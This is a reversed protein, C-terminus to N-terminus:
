AVAAHDLDVVAIADPRAVGVEVPDGNVLALVDRRTRLDAQQACGAPSRRLMEVVLDQDVPPRAIRHAEQPRGRINPFALLNTPEPAVAVATGDIMPGSILTRPSRWLSPSRWMSPVIWPSMRTLCRTTALSATTRPSTSAAVTRMAPETIPVSRDRSTMRVAVAFICPSM